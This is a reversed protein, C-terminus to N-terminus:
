VKTIGIQQEQSTCLSVLVCVLIAIKINVMILNTYNASNYKIKLELEIYLLFRVIKNETIMQIEATNWSYWM